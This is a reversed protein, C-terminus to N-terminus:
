TSKRDSPDPQFSEIEKLTPQFDLDPHNKGLGKVCQKLSEKLAKVPEPGPLTGGPITEVPIEIEDLNLGSMEFLGWHVLGIVLDHLGDDRIARTLVLVQKGLLAIALRGIGKEGTVPRLEMKPPRFQNKENEGTKRETGLVLWKEEFDQKTMGVGDDRIVLFGGDDEFFDVRVRKAYADHAHKFLENIANQTGAIQQRGLMDVARARTRIKAM